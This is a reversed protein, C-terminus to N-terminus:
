SIQKLYHLPINVLLAKNIEEIRLIVRTNNAYRILEGTMGSFPGSKIEVRYGRVIKGPFEELEINQELMNKILVIQKDPISVAKGEFTVYRVIGQINLPKYYEGPTIHVFLYCSFLPISVKKKRDSWQKLTTQLPLYAEIKDRLLLEYASKEHHSRTYMAYWRAQQTLVRTMPFVSRCYSLSIQPRDPYM